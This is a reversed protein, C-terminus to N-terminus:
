AMHVVAYGIGDHTMSRIAHRLGVAGHRQRGHLVGQSAYRYASFPYSADDRGRRPTQDAGIAAWVPRRRWNRASPPTTRHWWRTIGRCAMASVTAIQM